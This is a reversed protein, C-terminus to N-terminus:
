VRRREGNGINKQMSRSVMSNPDNIQGAVVRGTQDRIAKSIMVEVDGPSIQKTEVIVGANNNITIYAPASSASTPTGGKNIMELNQKGMRRTADANLVFEQGHVIGAPENIGMNGTYGGSSFKIAGAEAASLSRAGGSGASFSSPGAGGTISSSIAGMALDLPLQILSSIAQKQVSNLVDVIARRLDALSDGMVIANAAADAFGKILTGGPGFIANMNNAFTEFHTNEWRMSAKLEEIRKTALEAWDAMHNQRTFDRFKEFDNIQQQIAFNPSLSAAMGKM